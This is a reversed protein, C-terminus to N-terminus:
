ANITQQVPPATLRAKENLFFYIGGAVFLLVLIIIAVMPGVRMREPREPSPTTLPEDM